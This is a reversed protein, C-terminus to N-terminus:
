DAKKTKAKAAAQSAAANQAAAGQAAAGQAAAGAGQVHQALHSQGSQVNGHNKAANTATKGAEVAESSNDHHAQIGTQTNQMAAQQEAAQAQELSVEQGNIVTKAESSKTGEQGVQHLAENITKNQAQNQAMPNNENM